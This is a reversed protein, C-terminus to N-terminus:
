EVEFLERVTCRFDPLLDGGTLENDKCLVFGCIKPYLKILHAAIFFERSLLWALGDTLGRKDSRYQPRM